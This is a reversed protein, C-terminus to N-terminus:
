QGLRNMWNLVLTFPPPPGSSGSPRAMLIRDAGPTLSWGTPPMNNFARQAATTQWTPGPDVDVFELAGTL